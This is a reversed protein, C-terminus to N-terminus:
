ALGEKVNRYFSHTHCLFEHLADGSNVPTNFDFWIRAMDLLDQLAAQTACDANLNGPHLEETLLPLKFAAALAFRLPEQYFFTDQHINIMYKSMALVKDREEGWCIPATAGPLHRLTHWRRGLPASMHAFTYIKKEDFSHPNLRADSGVRVLRARPFQVAEFVVDHYWIEDWQDIDHVWKAPDLPPRELMWYIVKSRRAGRPPLAVVQTEISGDIPACIYVAGDDKIENNLEYGNLQALKILDCYPAYPRICFKVNM